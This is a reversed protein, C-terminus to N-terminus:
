CRSACLTTLGIPVFIFGLVLFSTIVCSPKLVPKCAPLNQQKFKNLASIPSDIPITRVPPSSARGLEM